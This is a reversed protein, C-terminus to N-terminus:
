EYIVPDRMILDVASAATRSVIPFPAHLAQIHRLNDATRSILMTLDGDAMESIQVARQWTEDAAWAYVAA